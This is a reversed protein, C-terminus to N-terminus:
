RGHNLQSNGYYREAHDASSIYQFYEIDSDIRGLPLKQGPKEGQTYLLGDGILQVICNHRRDKKTICDIDLDRCEEILLQAIHEYTISDVEFSKRTAKHSPIFRQIYWQNISFKHLVKPMALIADLNKKHIVSQIAINVGSSLFRQIIDQKKKYWEYNEQYNRKTLHKLHRFYMESQPRVADWSIRVLTNTKLIMEIVAHSPFITGNTDVVLGKNRIGKLLQILHNEYEPLFPEGGTIVIVMFPSRNIWEILETSIVLDDKQQFDKTVCHMCDLNCKMTLYVNLVVPDKEYPTVEKGNTQVRSFRHQSTDYTLKGWAEKREVIM